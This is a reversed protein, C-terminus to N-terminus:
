ADGTRTVRIGYILHSESYFSQLHFVLNTDDYVRYSIWGAGEGGDSYSYTTYTLAELNGTAVHKYLQMQQAYIRKDSHVQIVYMGSKVAGINLVLYADGSHGAPLRLANGANEAYGVRWEDEAVYYKSESWVAQLTASGTFDYTKGPEFYVKRGGIRAEWRYFTYVGTRYPGDSVQVQAANGSYTVYQPPISGEGDMLMM